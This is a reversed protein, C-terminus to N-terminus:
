PTKFIKFKNINNITASGDNAGYCDINNVILSDISFISCDFFGLSLTDAPALTQIINGLSDVEQTNWVCSYLGYNATNSPNNNFRVRLSLVQNVGQDVILGTSDPNPGNSTYHWFGYANGNNDISYPLNVFAGALPNFWQLEFDGHTITLSDHYILFEPRLNVDCGTNLLSLSTNTWAGYGTVPNITFATITQNVSNSDVVGVVVTDAQVCGQGGADTVTVIYTGAFLTDIDETTESFWPFAPNAWSFIYPQNGGNVTLDIAGDNDGDCSAGTISYAFTFCSNTTFNPGNVWTTDCKVRWNYTTLPNLGNITVIEVGTGSNLVIISDWNTLSTDKYALVYNQQACSGSEWQVIAEDAFVLTIQLNVPAQAFSLFSLFLLNFILLINKKM